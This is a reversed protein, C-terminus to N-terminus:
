LRLFTSLVVETHILLGSVWCASLTFALLLPSRTCSYCGWLTSTWGEEEARSWLDKIDAHYGSVRFPCEVKCFGGILMGIEEPFMSFSVDCTVRHRLIQTDWPRILNICFILCWLRSDFDFNLNNTAHIDMVYKMEHFHFCIISLLKQLM